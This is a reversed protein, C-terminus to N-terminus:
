KAYAYRQVPTEWVRQVTQVKITREHQCKKRREGTGSCRKSNIRKEKVYKRSKCKQSSVYDSHVLDYGKAGSVKM